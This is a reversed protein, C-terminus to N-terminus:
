GEGRTSDTLMRRVEADSLAEVGALAQAVAEDDARQRLEADVLAAVEAVTPSEFLARLALRVGFEKSIRGLVRIALLSHGGLDLFNDTAGVREKKLVDCWIRAVKEETPTRPAVHRDAPEESQAPDPLAARDIKGNSTLPLADLVIVSAPVMYEPLQEALWERLEDPTPREAHSAAYGGSKPVAYAILVPESAESTRLVSVAHAINPHQVLAQEIEALEVRYGRVKVQDDARGLFEITGDALRRVQDGTRYVRAGNFTTFREATLEPRNLYGQAVGAGGLWLEGPVGVPQETGHADVVVAFTNALPRGIPVTQAGQAIVADLTQTTVEFTLVGVTTETPGYHNLVRCRAASLLTRAPEPRLAEGGTVLWRAPLLAALEGGTKGSTLAALHNPTIKLGDLAHVSVYEAFRTPETTVDKGLVHLTAGALLAPYLSTNGLDAALTSAMALKTGDLTALGDGPTGSPIEALVRSVARVYHVVNAHTVAVGKPVGTSGSTYIVYALDNPTAVHAPTQDSCAGLVAADRDLAVIKVGAPLVSAQTGVTVIVTAGSEALQKAIRAPPADVPLPV